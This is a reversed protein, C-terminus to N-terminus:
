FPPFILQESCVKLLISFEEEVPIRGDRLYHLNQESARDINM